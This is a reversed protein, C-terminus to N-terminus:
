SEPSPQPPSANHRIRLAARAAALDGEAGIWHWFRIFDEELNELRAEMVQSKDRLFCRINAEVADLYDHALDMPDAEAGLLVGERWAQMIGFHSRRAFSAAADDRDRTLHVYWARNGWIEDLRGLQWSLRNDAEIHRPPYALRAAGLEHIRSEHGASFNRIHECARIWTMSGCRGSNLVFVNM